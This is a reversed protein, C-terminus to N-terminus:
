LPLKEIFEKVQYDWERSVLEVSTKKEEICIALSVLGGGGEFAISAESQETVKLGHGSPGFFSVARKIVEAPALKTKTEIRLM